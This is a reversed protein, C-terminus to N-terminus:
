LAEPPIGNPYDYCLQASKVSDTLLTVTQADQDEKLLYVSLESKCTNLQDLFLEKLTAM